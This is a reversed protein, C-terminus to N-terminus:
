LLPSILMKYCGFHCLPICHTATIRCHSWATRDPFVYTSFDEPEEPWVFPKDMEVTMKKISKPRYKRGMQDSQVRMQQVYSRVKL